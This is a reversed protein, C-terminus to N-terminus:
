VIKISKQNEKCKSEIFIRSIYKELLKLDRSGNPCYKVCRLCSICRRKDTKKPNIKDIVNEPCLEICLLCKKCNKNGKPKLPITQYKRFPKNIQYKVSEQVNCNIKEVMKKSFSNLLIFDEENPRDKSISKVFSHQTVVACLGIVYFGNNSFHEYIEMLASDYNRNGFTVCIIIRSNIGTINYFRNLATKPVRGSYVPFGLLIIDNKFQYSFDKNEYNTLNFEKEIQIEMKEVIKYLINKTTDTPSFYVLKM